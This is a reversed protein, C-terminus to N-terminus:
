EGPGVPQCWWPAGILTLECIMAQDLSGRYFTYYFKQGDFACLKIEDVYTYVLLREETTIPPLQESTKIWEGACKNSMGLM